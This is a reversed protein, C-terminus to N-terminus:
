KVIQKMCGYVLGVWTSSNPCFIKQVSALTKGRYYSGGPTLYKNHLLKAAAELGEEPSNFTIMKGKSMMSIYNCKARHSKTINWGSEAAILGCFFIENLEYKECLDYISDSNKEFFGSTDTKLDTMLKKFDEKSIGCRVTLDMNKSITIDDITKYSVQEEVLESTRDASSRSTVEINREYIEAVTIEEQVINEQNSNEGIREEKTSIFLQVNSSLIIGILVVSIIQRIKLGSKSNNEVKNFM